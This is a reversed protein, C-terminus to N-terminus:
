TALNVSPSRSTLRRAAEGVHVLAIAGGLLLPGYVFPSLHATAWGRGLSFALAAIVLCQGLYLGWSHVGLWALPRRIWPRDAVAAMVVLLVVTLPLDLMWNAYEALDPLFVGGHVLWGAVVLPMAIAATRWRLWDLHHALLIGFTLHAFVRPPFTVLGYFGLRWLLEFRWAIAALTCGIGVVLAPGRGIRAAAVHVFPFLMALELGLTVFWATDVWRLDGIAHHVALEWSLPVLPPRFWLAMAWWVALMGWMPVYLRRIRGRVWTGLDAMTRGDWWRESNIGSLVVFVPVAHNMLHVTVLADVPAGGHIIMMPLVAIGKLM